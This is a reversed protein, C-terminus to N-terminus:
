RRWGGASSGQGQEEVEEGDPRVFLGIGSAAGSLDLGVLLSGVLAVACRSALVARPRFGTAERAAGSQEAQPQGCGGPLWWAGM